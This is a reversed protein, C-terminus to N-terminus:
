NNNFISKFYNVTKERYEDGLKESTTTTINKGIDRYKFTGKKPIEMLDMLATILLGYLKM